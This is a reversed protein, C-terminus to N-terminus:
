GAGNYLIDHRIAFPPYIYIYIYCNPVIELLPISHKSTANVLSVTLYSDHIEEGSIEQPPLAYILVNEPKLNGHSENGWHLYTVAEVMQRDSVSEDM